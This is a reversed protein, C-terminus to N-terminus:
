VDPSHCSNFGLNNYVWAKLTTGDVSLGSPGVSITQGGVVTLSGTKATNLAPPKDKGTSGPVDPVLGWGSQPNTVPPSPSGHSLACQWTLRHGDMSHTVILRGLRIKHISSHKGQGLEGVPVTTSIGQSNTTAVASAASLGAYATLYTAIFTVVTDRGSPKVTEAM